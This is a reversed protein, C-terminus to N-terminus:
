FVPPLYSHCFDWASVIVIKEGDRDAGQRRKNKRLTHTVRPFDCAGAITQNLATM